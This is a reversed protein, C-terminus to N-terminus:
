PPWPCLLVSARYNRRSCSAAREPPPQDSDILAPQKAIFANVSSGVASRKTRRNSMSDTTENKLGLPGFPHRTTSPAVLQAISDFSTNIASASRRRTASAATRLRIAAPRAAPSSGSPVSMSASVPSTVAVRYPSDMFARSPADRALRSSITSRVIRIHGLRWTTFRQSQLTRLCHAIPVFKTVPSIASHDLNQLVKQGTHSDSDHPPESM